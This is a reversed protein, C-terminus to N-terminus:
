GAEKLGPRERIDAVASIHSLRESECLQCFVAKSCPPSRALTDAGRARPRALAPAVAPCPECPSLLDDSGAVPSACPEPTRGLAVPRGVRRPAPCSATPQGSGRLLSARRRGGVAPGSSPLHPRTSPLGASPRSREHINM